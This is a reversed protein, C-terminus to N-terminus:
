VRKDGAAEHGSVQVHASACVHSQSGMTEGPAEPDWVNVPKHGSQYKARLGSIEAPKDLQVVALLSVNNYPGKSAPTTPVGPM